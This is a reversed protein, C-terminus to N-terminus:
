KGICFNEFIRGLLEDSSVEGTIEGLAQQALRLEEAMLEGAKFEKLQRYGEDLHLRAKELAALHRRRASLAGSEGAQFGVCAELHARLIDIGEGTLASVSIQRVGDRTQCEGSDEGVLDIKNRILTMAVDDPLDRSIEDLMEDSWDCADAVVLVRDAKAMEHRARRIGEEEVIDADDRLGATDIVHLPMGDISIRERLLDRTTGPLHTVIATEEGTLRNMLSSKGANPKGALVITMGERLIAGQRTAAQLTDFKQRVDELRGRLADDELFDIEEEPFDIAAEVHIRLETLRAVLDHVHDSFEGVMSRVAARAAEATTSDILDAVAEAQALDMRDNLYARQSFEGARAPRAGLDLTRALLLDCVVPGGHGHLEVVDEGTFSAPHPFFVVLGEDLVCGDSGEIRRHIMKRAIPLPGVMQEAISVADPGSIRVIGIGGRGPPTAIAAITDDTRIV